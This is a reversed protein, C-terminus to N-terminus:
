AWRVVNWEGYAGLTCGMRARGMKRPYPSLRRQDFASGVGHEGNFAAEFVIMPGVKEIYSRMAYSGSWFLHPAGMELGSACGSRKPIAGVSRLFRHLIRNSGFPCLGMRWRSWSRMGTPHTENEPILLSLRRQDFASGVSQDGEFAADFVITPSVEEIPPRMGGGGSWCCQSAGRKRPQM